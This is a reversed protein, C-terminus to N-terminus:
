KTAPKGDVKIDPTKAPTTSIGKKAEDQKKYFAKYQEKYKEKFKEMDKAVSEYRRYPALKKLSILQNLQLDDALLIEAADLGFNEKPM